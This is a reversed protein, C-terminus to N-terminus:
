RLIQLDTNYQLNNRKMIFVQLAIGVNERKLKGKEIEKFVDGNEHSCLYRRFANWLKGNVM